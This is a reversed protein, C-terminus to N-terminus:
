DGKENEGISAQLDETARKLATALDANVASGSPEHKGIQVYWAMSDGRINRIYEISVRRNGDCAARLLPEIPAAPNPTTM